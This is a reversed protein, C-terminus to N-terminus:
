AVLQNLVPRYSRFINAEPLSHREKLLHHAQRLNQCPISPYLHHEIHYNVHHPAFFFTQLPNLVTRTNLRQDKNPAYGAHETIGRIRLLIQLPSMMPLMWLTIYLLPHGVLYLGSFLIGNMIVSWLLVSQLGLQPGRDARPVKLPPTGEHRRPKMFFFYAFFKFFSVGLFDRLIKRLFSKGNVPYGGILSLDPDGPALPDLHHRLHLRRYFGMSIFLPSATLIQGVYNNWFPSAFLRGHAGDHMLIALALQQRAIFIFCFFYVAPNPFYIALALLAAIGGWDFALAKMTHITSPKSFNRVEEVTLM